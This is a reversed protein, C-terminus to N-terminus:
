KRKGTSRVVARDGRVKVVVADCVYQYNGQGSGFSSRNPETTIYYWPEENSYPTSHRLVVADGPAVGVANAAFHTTALRGATLEM